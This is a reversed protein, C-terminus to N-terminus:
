IQLPQVLKLENARHHNMDGIRNVVRHKFVQHFILADGFDNKRCQQFFFHHIHLHTAVFVGVAGAILHRHKSDIEARLDAVFITAQLEYQNFQLFSPEFGFGQSETLIKASVVSVGFINKLFVIRFSIGYRHDRNVEQTMTHTINLLRHKIHIVLCEVILAVLHAFSQGVGKDVAKHM